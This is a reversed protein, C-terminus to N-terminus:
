LKVGLVYPHFLEALVGISALGILVAKMDDQWLPDYIPRQQRLTSSVIDMVAVLLMAAYFWVVAVKGVALLHGIAWLSIGLSMPNQLRHKIYGRGFSAAILIIGIPVLAMTIQRAGSVPEYIAQAGAGGTRSQWYAWVMFIIGLSTVAAFSTKFKAEGVWAKARDRVAPALSSLAHPLVFLLFGLSSFNMLREADFVDIDVLDPGLNVVAM